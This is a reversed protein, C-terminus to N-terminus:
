AHRPALDIRVDAGVVGVNVVDGRWVDGITPAGDGTFVGPADSGGMFGPAVYLVYRDVLGATHFGHAVTAGGEVLVQIVGRGGLEDLVAGPDGTREICPHVSAGEPAQGLVVRVPQRLGDDPDGPVVGPGDDNWVTDGAREWGPLRVTLSPNDARVTAAGVIIADSDARLNHADARAEPGTIWQSTGDPAATRGDATMAAKLVVWPRGTRRHHLYPELQATVESGRVGVEVDVGHRRLFAVGEGAVNDDPDTVGIVVRAVGADAITEACPPTLGHHSCPELTCYLTSGRAREGAAGLAVVEAHPGRRGQTAGTFVQPQHTGTPVIVAGVWPRPSVRRRAQWAVAVAMDMYDEDTM